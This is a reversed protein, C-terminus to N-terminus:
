VNKRPACVKTRLCAAAGNQPMTTDDNNNQRARAFRLAKCMVVWRKPTKRVHMAAANTHMATCKISGAYVAAHVNRRRPLKTRCFWCIPLLRWCEIIFIIIIYFIMRMACFMIIFGVKWHIYVFSAQKTWWAWIDIYRLVDRGWISRKCELFIDDTDEGGASM